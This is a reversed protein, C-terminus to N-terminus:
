KNPREDEGRKSLWPLLAEVRDLAAEFHELLKIGVLIWQLDAEPDPGSDSFVIVEGPEEEVRFYIVTGMGNPHTHDSLFDYEEVATPRLKELKAIHTLINTAKVKAGHESILKPIRTSHTRNKIFNFIEELSGTEMIHTFENEFALYAAVTEYISRVAMMSVLGKQLFFLGYASEALVLNRRLHAQNFVKVLGSARFGNPEMVPIRDIKRATLRALLDNLDAISKRSLVRGPILAADIM